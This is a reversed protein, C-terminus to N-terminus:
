TSLGTVTGTAPTRNTVCGAFPAAPADKVTMTSNTEELPDTTVVDDSTTKSESTPPPDEAPSVPDVDAVATCPIAVNVPKDIM